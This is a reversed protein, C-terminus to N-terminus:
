KAQGESEKTDLIYTKPFVIHDIGGEEANGLLDDAVHAFDFWLEEFGVVYGVLHYGAYFYRNDVGYEM